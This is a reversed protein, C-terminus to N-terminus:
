NQMFNDMMSLVHTPIVRTSCADRKEFQYDKIIEGKSEHIERLMLLTSEMAAFLSDETKGGKIYTSLFNFELEIIDDLTYNMSEIIQLARNAYTLLYKNIEVKYPRNLYNAKTVKRIFPFRSVVKWTNKDQFERLIHWNCEAPLINGM